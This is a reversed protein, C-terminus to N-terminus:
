RARRCEHCVRSIGRKNSRNSAFMLVDLLRGCSACAQVDERSQQGIGVFLMPEGKVIEWDVCRLSYWRDDLDTADKVADCVLDVVNVADGKHDPKQVFIDIWLKNLGIAKGAIASRVSAALEARFQRSRARSRVHDRDKATWVHNKSAAYSFPVAVRVLWALTPAAISTISGASKASLARGRTRQAKKEAEYRNASVPYPLIIKM